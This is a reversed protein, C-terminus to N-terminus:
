SPNGSTISPKDLAISDPVNGGLHQFSGLNAGGPRQEIPPLILPGLGRPYPDRGDLPKLPSLPDDAAINRGYHANLFRQFPRSYLKYLGVCVATRADPGANL